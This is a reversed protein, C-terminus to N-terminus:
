NHSNQEKAFYYRFIFNALVFGFLIAIMDNPDFIMNTWNQEVEYLLAGCTVFISSKIFKVHSNPKLIIPVLLIIGASYLFSPSSGLFLNFLWHNEFSLERVNQIVAAIVFFLVLIISFVLNMKSM